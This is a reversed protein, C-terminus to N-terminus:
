AVPIGDSISLSLSNIPFDIICQRSGCVIDCIDYKCFAHMYIEVSWIYTEELYLHFCRIQEAGLEQQMHITGTM